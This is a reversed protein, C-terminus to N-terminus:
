QVIKWSGDPQRCARGYGQQQQGGVVITQQFERCYQGATQYVPGPTM